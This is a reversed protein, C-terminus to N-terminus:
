LDAILVVVTRSLSNPLKCGLNQVAIKFKKWDWQSKGGTMQAMVKGLEDLRQKPKPGMYHRGVRFWLDKPVKREKCGAKIQELWEAPDDKANGKFVPADPWSAYVAELDFPKNKLADFM